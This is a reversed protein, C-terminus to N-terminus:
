YPTADDTHIAKTSKLVAPNELDFVKTKIEDITGLFDFETEPLTIDKSESDEEIQKEYASYHFTEDDVRKEVFGVNAPTGITVRIKLLNDKQFLITDHIYDKM